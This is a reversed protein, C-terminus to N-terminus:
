AVHPLCHPPEIPKTSQEFTLPHYALTSRGETLKPGTVEVITPSTHKLHIPSGPSHCLPRCLAVTM